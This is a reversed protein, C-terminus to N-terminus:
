RVDLLDPLSPFLLVQWESSFWCYSLAVFSDIQPPFVESGPQMQRCLLRFPAKSRASDKTRLGDATLPHLRGINVLLIRPDIVSGSQREHGRRLIQTTSSDDVDILEM